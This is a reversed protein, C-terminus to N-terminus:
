DPPVKCRITSIAGGKKDFTTEITESVWRGDIGTRFGSAAVFAGASNAPDYVVTFEASGTLMTLERARSEAAQRAEAESPRGHILVHAHGAKGTAQSITKRKGDQPDHWSAVVASFRPRPEGSGDWGLSGARMVLITPLEAGGADRGSGRKVVALRGGAPKVAAGQEGALRTAFDMPSAEWRAAWDLVRSGIDPDVMASLGLDGAIEGFISALSAQDWHKVGGAKGKQTLSAARATMTMTEAGGSWGSRWGQVKFVGAVSVGTEVQGALVTLEDDELPLPIQGGADDLEVELRDNETGVADSLTARIFYPAMTPMLDAGGKLIQIIPTM